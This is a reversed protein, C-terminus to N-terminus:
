EVDLCFRAAGVGGGLPLLLFLIWVSYYFVSVYGYRGLSSVGLLSFVPGM